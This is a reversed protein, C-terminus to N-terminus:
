INSYELFLLIILISFFVLGARSLPMVFAYGILCFNFIREHVNATAPEASTTEMLTSM